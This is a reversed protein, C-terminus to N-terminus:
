LSAAAAIKQAIVRREAPWVVWSWVRGNRVIAGHAAFLDRMQGFAARDGRWEKRDIVQLRAFRMAFRELQRPTGSVSLREGTDTNHADLRVIRRAQAPPASFEFRRRETITVGAATGAASFMHGGAATGTLLARLEHLERELQAVRRSLESDTAVILLIYAQNDFTYM